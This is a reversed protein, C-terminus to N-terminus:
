LEMKKMLSTFWLVKDGFIPDAIRRYEEFIEGTLTRYAPIDEAEAQLSYTFEDVAGESIIRSFVLSTYGRQRLFPVYKNKLIDLWMQQAEPAVVFTTNVIYM